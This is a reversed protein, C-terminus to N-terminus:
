SFLEITKRAANRCFNQCDILAEFNNDNGQCGTYEFSQCEKTAANYWFRRVSRDCNGVRM